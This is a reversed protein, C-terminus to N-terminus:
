NVMTIEVENSGKKRIFMGGLVTEGREAESSVPYEFAEIAEFCTHVDGNPLFNILRREVFDRNKFPWPAKNQKYYYVVDSGYGRFDVFKVLSEKDWKQRIEPDNM